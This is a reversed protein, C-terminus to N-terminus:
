LGMKERYYAYFGRILTESVMTDQPEHGSGGMTVLQVSDPAQGVAQQMVAVIESDDVAVYGAPGMLNAQKLRRRTM